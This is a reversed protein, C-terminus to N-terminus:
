QVVHSQFCARGDHVNQDVAYEDAGACIRPQIIKACRRMENSPLVDCFVDLLSQDNWPRASNLGSRLFLTEVFNERFRAELPAIRAAAHADAHVRVYQRRVFAAGASRVTVEFATLTAVAARM